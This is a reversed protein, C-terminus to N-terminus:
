VRARFRGLGGSAAAAADAKPEQEEAVQQGSSSDQERSQAGHQIVAVPRDPVHIFYAGGSYNTYERPTKM